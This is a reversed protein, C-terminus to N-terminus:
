GRVFSHDRTFHGCNIKYATSTLCKGSEYQGHASAYDGTYTHGYLDTWAAVSYSDRIKLLQGSHHGLTRNRSGVNAPLPATRQTITGLIGWM